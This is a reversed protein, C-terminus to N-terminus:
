KRKATTPRLVFPVLALEIERRMDDTSHMVFRYGGHEDARVTRKFNPHATIRAVAKEITATVDGGRIILLLAAKTDRWVLYKFLQALADDVSKPGNWEKCEGIFIHRDEVRILIDTKGDGNFVEGAAAGEFHNNLNILLLDRIREESLKAALPPTRELASRTLDLVHLARGYLVAELAPEPVFTGTPMPPLLVRQRVPTIYTAAGPRERVPYGIQAQLDRAALIQQKRQAVERALGPRLEQNHADTMTRSWNLWREIQDLQSDIASRMQAHSQGNHDFALMIESSTLDAVEPYSSQHQDPRVRFVRKDGTYPVVVQTQPVRRTVPRGSPWSTAPLEVERVPLVEIRDRDLVPCEATAAVALFEVVDADPTGLLKDHNMELLHAAAAARAANLDERLQGQSFLQEPM